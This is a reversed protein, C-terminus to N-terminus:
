LLHCKNVASKTTEENCVNDDGLDIPEVLRGYRQGWVPHQQGCIHCHCCSIDENTLNCSGCEWAIVVRSCMAVPEPISAAVFAFNNAAM